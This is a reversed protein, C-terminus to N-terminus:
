LYDKYLSCESDSWRGVKWLEEEINPIQAQLMFPQFEGDIREKCLQKMVREKRKGVLKILDKLRDTMLENKQITILGQRSQIDFIMRISGLYQQIAQSGVMDHDVVDSNVNAIVKDYDPRDFFGAVRKQVFKGRYAQYYLFGFVKDPTILKDVPDSGFLSVCYAQFELAKPTYASKTNKPTNKLKEKAIAAGQADFNPVAPPKRPTIAGSPSLYLTLTTCTVIPVPPPQNAFALAFQDDVKTMKPPSIFPPPSLWSSPLLSPNAASPSPSYCM